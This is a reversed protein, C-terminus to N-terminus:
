DEVSEYLIKGEVEEEKDRYHYFEPRNRKSGKLGIKKIRGWRLKKIKMTAVTKREGTPSNKEFMLVGDRLECNPIVWYENENLNNKNFYIAFKRNLANIGGLKEFVMFTESIKIRKGPEIKHSLYEFSLFSDQWIKGSDLHIVVPTDGEFLIGVCLEREKDVFAAWNGSLGIWRKYTKGIQFKERMIQFNGEPSLFRESYSYAKGAFHANKFFLTNPFPGVGYIGTLRRFVSGLPGTEEPLILVHGWYSLPKEENRDLAVDVEIKLSPNGRRISVTRSLVGKGKLASLRIKVEESNKSIIELDYTYYGEPHYGTEWFFDKYGAKNNTSCGMLQMLPTSLVEKYPLFIDRDIPKYYYEVIRGSREPVISVRILENEMIITTGWRSEEKLLQCGDAFIAIGRCSIFFFLLIIM